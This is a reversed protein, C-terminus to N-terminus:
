VSVLSRPKCGQDDLSQSITPEMPLPLFPPLLRAARQKSGRQSEVLLARVHPRVCWLGQVWLPHRM